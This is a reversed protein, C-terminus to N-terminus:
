RVSKSAQPAVSTSEPGRAASDQSTLLRAFVQANTPGFSELDIRTGIASDQLTLRGDSRGILDFPQESGLGHQRRERAMARLAGRLFGQEGAISEIVRGSRADIVAVSGDAADEFRLSRIMVAEADPMRVEVGSMRVAAVGSLSVVLMLGIAILMGRPVKDNATTDIMPNTRGEDM